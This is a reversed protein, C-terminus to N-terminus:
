QIHEHLASFYDFSRLLRSGYWSFLEGDVLLIKAKPLLQALEAADKEKFPYPEDSLLIIEPNLAAIMEDSLVPYRTDTVVNSFGAIHMMDHIFTDTGASMFPNKWILYLAAAKHQRSLSYGAKATKLLAVIRQAPESKGTIQGISRIMDLADDFTRIDSVWVPCIAELMAIDEQTNEEKNAFIVDPKLASVANININKTGGVRKKNKFWNEPHVCFKTIGVVEADLGLDYLLETQSPVVSVIRAPIYDIQLNRNLQDKM